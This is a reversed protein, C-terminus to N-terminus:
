RAKHHVRQSGALLRNTQQLVPSGGVVRCGLWQPRHALVVHDLHGDPRVLDALSGPVELPDWVLHDPTM